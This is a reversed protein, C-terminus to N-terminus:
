HTHPIGMKHFFEMVTYLMPEPMADQAVDPDTGAFVGCRNLKYLWVHLMNFGPVWGQRSTTSTARSQCEGPTQPQVFFPTHNVDFSMRAYDLNDWCPGWHYHWMADHSQFLHRPHGTSGPGPTIHGNTVMNEMTLAISQQTLAARSSPDLVWRKIDVGHYYFVAVLNGNEDYNIGEPDEVHLVTDLNNVYTPDLGTATVRFPMRAYHQGHGMLPQTFPRFGAAIANNKDRYMETAWFLAALQRDLPTSAAGRNRATDSVDRGDLQGDANRDFFAIYEDGGVQHSILTVDDTDVTGDGDFDAVSLIPQAVADEPCHGHM